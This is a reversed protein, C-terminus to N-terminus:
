PGREGLLAFVLLDACLQLADMMEQLSAIGIGRLRLPRLQGPQQLRLEGVWHPHYWHGLCRVREIGLRQLMEFLPSEHHGVIGMEAILPQRAGALHQHQAIEGFGVLGIDGPVVARAHVRQYHDANEDDGDCQREIKQHIPEPTIDIRQAVHRQRYLLAVEGDTCRRDARVQHSGQAFCQGPHGGLQLVDHFPLPDQGLRNRVFGAGRQRPHTECQGHHLYTVLVRFASLQEFTQFGIDGPQLLKGRSAHGIRLEPAAQPDAGLSQLNGLHEVREVLTKRGAAPHPAQAEQGRMLAGEDGVAIRQQQCQAVQDAVRAAMRGALHHYACGRDLLPHDDGHVIVSRADGRCVAFANELRVHLQLPVGIAESQPQGQDM